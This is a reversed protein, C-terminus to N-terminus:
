PFTDSMSRCSYLTQVRNSRTARDTLKSVIASQHTTADPPQMKFIPNLVAELSYNPWGTTTSLFAKKSVFYGREAPYGCTVPVRFMPNCGGSTVIDYDVGINM